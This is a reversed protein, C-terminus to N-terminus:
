GNNKVKRFSTNGELNELLTKRTNKYNPGNLGIRILWTRLAYKPNEDQSPKALTRKMKMAQKSIQTILDTFANIQKTELNDARLIFTMKKNNFDVEFGSNLKYKNLEDELENMSEFKRKCLEQIVGSDVFKDNLNLASILLHQKSALMNMINQLSKYTHGDLPVTLKFENVINKCEEEKLLNTFTVVEGVSTTIVGNKDITYVENNARIEYKFDPAGLYKPKVGFHEGLKKVMIKREM